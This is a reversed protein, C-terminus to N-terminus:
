SSVEVRGKVESEVPAPVDAVIWTYVSGGGTKTVDAIYDVQERIAHGDRESGGAAVYTLGGDPSHGVRVLVRVPITRGPPAEPKTETGTPGDTADSAYLYSWGFAGARARVPGGMCKCVMRRADDREDKISKIADAMRDALAEHERQAENRERRSRAVEAKLSAIVDSIASVQAGPELCAAECIAAMDEAHKDLVTDELHGVVDALTVRNPDLGTCHSALVRKAEIDAKNLKAQTAISADLRCKLQASEALLRKAPRVVEALTATRPDLGPVHAALVSKVAALDRRLDLNKMKAGSLMERAHNRERQAEDLLKRLQVPGVDDERWVLRAAQQAQTSSAPTERACSGMFDDHDDPSLTEVKRAARSMVNLARFCISAAVAEPGEGPGVMFPAPKRGGKLAIVADALSMRVHPPALRALEAVDDLTVSVDASTALAEPEFHLCERLDYPGSAGDDPGADPGFEGVMEEIAQRIGAQGARFMHDAFEELVAHDSRDYVPLLTELEFEDIAARVNTAITM